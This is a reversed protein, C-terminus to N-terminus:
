LGSLVAITLMVLGILFLPGFAVAMKYGLGRQRFEDDVEQRWNVVDKAFLLLAAASAVLATAADYPGPMDSFGLAFAIGLMLAAQVFSGQHALALYKPTAPEEARIVSMFVGTVFGGFLLALATVILIADPATM